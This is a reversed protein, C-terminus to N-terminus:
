KKKHDKCNGKKNKKTCDVPKKKKYCAHNFKVKPDNKKYFRCDRCSVKKKKAM